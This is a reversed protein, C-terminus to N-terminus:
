RWIPTVGRHCRRREARASVHSPSAAAFEFRSVTLGSGFWIEGPSSRQCLMVYEGADLTQERRLIEGSGVPAAGGIDSVWPPPSGSIVPQTGMDDLVDQATKGDDLWLGILNANGGTNTVLEVGAVDGEDPLDGCQITLIAFPSCWLPSGYRPEFEVDWARVM